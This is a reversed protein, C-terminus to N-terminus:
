AGAADAFWDGFFDALRDIGIPIDAIRYAPPEECLLHTVFYDWRRRITYAQHVQMSHDAGPVILLDFDKNARILADVLRLTLQPYVNDDLEGHVLLLKGELRRALTRNAHAEYDVEGIRGIYKEGWSPHYLRDDHNGSVSVAASFFDPHRLM